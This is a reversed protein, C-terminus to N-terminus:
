PMRLPIRLSWTTFFELGIECSWREGDELSVHPIAHMYLCVLGNKQPTTDSGLYLYMRLYIKVLEREREGRHKGEWAQGPLEQGM